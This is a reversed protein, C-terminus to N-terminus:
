HVLAWSINGHEHWSCSLENAIGGPLTEPRGTQLVSGHSLGLLLRFSQTMLTLYSTHTNACLTLRCFMGSLDEKDKCSNPKKWVKVQHMRGQCGARVQGRAELSGLEEVLPVCPVSLKLHTREEKCDGARQLQERRSKRKVSIWITTIGEEEPRLAYTQAIIFPVNVDSTKIKEM